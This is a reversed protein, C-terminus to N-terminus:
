WESLAVFTSSRLYKSSWFVTRQRSFKVQLLSINYGIRSATVLHTMYQKGYHSIADQFIDVKHHLYSLGM